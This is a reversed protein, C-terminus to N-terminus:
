ELKALLDENWDKHVPIIYKCDWNRDRCRQGAEDNDVAIIVPMERKIRYITQQNAVGGLSVYKANKEKGEGKLLLYLSIADIASECVYAKEPKGVIIDWYRDPQNKIIGHFPKGDSYTGRLEAFDRDRNVFVVNHHAKDQYILGAKELYGIIEYPIGRKQNLYAYMQRPKEDTAPPFTPKPIEKTLKIEKPKIVAEKYEVDGSGALAKVADVLDYDMYDVLYDIASGSHGDDSFDHFWSEGLKISIPKIAKYHPYVDPDILRVCGCQVIYHDPDTELLFEGLDVNRAKEMEEATYFNRRM